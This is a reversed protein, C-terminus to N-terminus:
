GDGKQSAADAPEGDNHELMPRLAGIILDMEAQESARLAKLNELETVMAQNILSPDSLGKEAAERLVVSAGRVQRSTRRMRNLRKSLKLIPDRNIDLNVAPENNKAEQASEKAADAEARASEAEVRASALDKEASERAEVAKEVADSSAALATEMDEVKAHLAKNREELQANAIKEGDLENQLAESQAGGDDIAPKDLAELGRGIRDMAASIRSELDSIDSM